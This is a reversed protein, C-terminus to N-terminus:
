QSANISYNVQEAAFLLADVLLLAGAVKIVQMFGGTAQKDKEQQVETWGLVESMGGIGAMRIDVGGETELEGAPMLAHCPMAHLRGTVRRTHRWAQPCQVRARLLSAALAPPM